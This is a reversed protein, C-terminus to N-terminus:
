YDSYPNLKSNAPRAEKLKAELTACGTGDKEFNKYNYYDPHRWVYLTLFSSKAMCQHDKEEQTLKKVPVPKPKEEKKPKTEDKTVDKTKGGTAPTAPPKTTDVKKKSGGSPETTAPKKPTTAPKTPTTAPTPKKGTGGTKPTNSVKNGEDNDDDDCQTTQSATKVFRTGESDSSL